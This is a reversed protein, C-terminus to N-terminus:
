DRNKKKRNGTAKRVANPNTKGPLIDTVHKNTKFRSSKSYVDNLAFPTNRLVYSPDNLIVDGKVQKETLAFKSAKQQPIPQDEVLIPNNTHKGSKPMPLSYRTGRINIPKRFNIFVVKEGKENVKVVVRKLTGLNGCSRCFKREMDTTIKFCAHCRLVFQKTERIIAGGDVSVVKLGIQMLVNQIAFDSTICAVSVKDSDNDSIKLFSLKKKMQQINNPTIWSSEDDNESEIKDSAENINEAKEETCKKYNIEESEKEKDNIQPMYFGDIKATTKATHNPLRAIVKQHNPESHLHQTGNFRKELSYTLAIIKLDVLSLTCYDGTKKAFDAVFKLDESLPERFTIAYPLAAVRERTAKDKIEDFVGDVSYLNEAIEHLPSCHIFAATDVVLHRVKERENGCNASM